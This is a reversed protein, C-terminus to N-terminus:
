KLRRKLDELEQQCPAKLIEDNRGMEAKEM